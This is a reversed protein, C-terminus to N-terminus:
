KAFKLRTAEGGHVHRIKLNFAIKKMVKNYLNLDLKKLRITLDMHVTTKSVGLELAISRVTANKTSIYKEAAFIIRKEMGNTIM